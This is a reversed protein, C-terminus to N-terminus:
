WKTNRKQETLYFLLPAIIAYFLDWIPLSYVFNKEKLKLFCKGQIWWKMLIIVGFIVGSIIRFESYFQLIVFSIWLLLITIPYIGLLIKKIVKYKNSTSYHRSKQRVWRSWNPVAPSLCFTDPDINITYNSKQAAEQIFLDDDGSPLSYHSKFGSVSNFVSKTYGLNRGVGMYPLKALAMSIYNVGIWAADFRIIKNLIGKNKTFPGYGIVIQKKSNFSSAMKKLWVASAPKCDADTLIFHEYKAGKIAMTIPFKKGARLHKNKPIDIVKLNSYEKQFAILLWNSDDVSQHNVVIVEFEPYDQNLISPLNEYLNDSENRAAIIISVPFLTTENLEKKKYFSMRAFIFFLYLFQIFTALCMGTFCYTTFNFQFTPIIELM